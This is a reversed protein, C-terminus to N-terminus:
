NSCDSHKILSDISDVHILFVNKNKTKKGRQSEDIVSFDAQTANNPKANKFNYFSKLFLCPQSLKQQCILQLNYCFHKGSVSASVSPKWGITTWNKFQKIHNTIWFKAM